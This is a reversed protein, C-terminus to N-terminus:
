QEVLEVRRSKARRAEDATGALAIPRRAGINVRM